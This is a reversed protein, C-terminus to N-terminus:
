FRFVERSLRKAAIACYKEEIEIGIACMNLKKAAILTTGSGMFPDIVIADITWLKALLGHIMGVPKVCPHQKYNGPEIHWRIVSEERMGCLPGNRAIQILEWTRKFCRQPDGGWGVAGGKDWVLLNRWEGPFPAYPSAFVVAPIGKAAAWDCAFTGLSLDENGAIHYGNSSDGGWRGNDQGKRGMGHDALGLGFPPDTFLLTAQLSPLIERCDGHFIQIGYKDDQYYPKM